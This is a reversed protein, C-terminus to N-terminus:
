APRLEAELHIQHRQGVAGMHLEYRLADGDLWLIREVTDIRKASITLGVVSAHLRLRQGDMEGRHVEVVGTPQAVVLEPGAAGGPRLYGAETHLPEQGPLSWTRQAYALFPAGPPATFSIEEGYRFSAITPYRGEGTGRWRGALFALPELDSHVLM